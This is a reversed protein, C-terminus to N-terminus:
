LCEMRGEVVRIKTNLYPQFGDEELEELTFFENYIANLCKLTRRVKEETRKIKFVDDTYCKYLVIGSTLSIREMHDLFIIAMLPATRNEMTTAVDKNLSKRVSVSSM